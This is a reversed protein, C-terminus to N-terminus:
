RPTKRVTALKRMSQAPMIQSLTTEDLSKPPQKWSRVSFSWSCDYVWRQEIQGRHKRDLQYDRWMICETSNRCTMLITFLWRQVFGRRTWRFPTWGNLFNPFSKRHLHVRVHIHQWIRHREMWSLWFDMHKTELIKDMRPGLLYSLLIIGSKIRERKIQWTEAEDFPLVSM